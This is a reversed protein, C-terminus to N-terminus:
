KQRSFLSPNEVCDYDEVRTEPEWRWAQYDNLVIPETLYVPDSISIDYTLRNETNSLKFRELIEVEESQPFGLLTQGLDLEPYNIRTTRVVLSNGEWHGVSYGLSTPSQREADHDLDMHITRAQGFYEMRITIENESQQFEIPHPGAFIMARPMGPPTCGIVPDDVYPDYAAHYALAAETFPLEDLEPTYNSGVSVRNWVRFLGPDESAVVAVTARPAPAYGVVADSWRAELRPRFIAETGSPLLVNAVDMFRETRRSPFGAVKVRDGVRVVGRPLGRRDLSVLDSSELDWTAGDDTQVQFHVHPNRWFVSTVEGEIERVESREFELRSHHAMALVPACAALLVVEKWRGTM